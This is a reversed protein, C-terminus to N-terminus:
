DDLLREELAKLQNEHESVEFIKAMVSAAYVLCRAKEIEMEDNLIGHIVRNLLRIADAPKKFKLRCKSKSPGPSDKAKTKM